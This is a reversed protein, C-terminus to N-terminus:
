ANAPQRVTLVPCRAHRVVREAVSGMLVHALGTRGHTGMVVLDASEAEEAIEEAAGGSRVVARAPVGRKELLAVLRELEEGAVAERLGALESRAVLSEDVHVLVIEAGFRRALEEAYRLARMSCVSFDTPVLLRQIRAVGEHLDEHLHPVPSTQYAM